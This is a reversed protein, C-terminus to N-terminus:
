EEWELSQNGETFPVVPVFRWKLEKKELNHRFHLFQIGEKVPNTGSALYDIGDEAHVAFASVNNGIDGALAIVEIGRKEVKQLLPVIETQWGNRTIMYNCSWNYAKDGQHAKMDPHDKIWILKHTMIILHSSEQITDAVQQLMSLQEGTITCKWDVEEQTYLIVFTIGNQHTTFSKPRKTAQEVLKLNANDHNGLAWLTTPADLDFIRELYDLTSKEKSTEECIDGGLLIMDFQGYNIKEMRPDIVQNVTDFIRTHAVHIYNKINPDAISKQCQSCLVIAITCVLYAVVNHFSFTRQKMHTAFSRYHYYEGLVLRSFLRGILYYKIEQGV